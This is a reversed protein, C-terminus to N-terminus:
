KAIDKFYRAKGGLEDEIELLRNYKAIRDSRSLSGTKIQGASTAVALDAIFDDETEGSRHSIVTTFGNEKALKIAALTETLTGIQNLKILISNAAKEEIGRQLFHTNTVFLDDGVIQIKNGLKATLEKWGEWDNEDLGDEISTIPYKQTLEEFYSVMESATRSRYSEGALRKKKEIYKQTKKDYFESAAADLAITIQSQPDYGAKEIAQVMLDLAEENSALSPAFGGEDGVSTSHGKDKLIKKLTHFVECGWRLAETFNPAGTPRIMFEQFDLSSDAHVGGNIINMMPCPLLHADEELISQYLPLKRIHARARAIALSVGLIANAGFFSKHPTGDTEIMLLDLKDQELLSKGKLLDLLPGNVNAVAKKVGKGFYRTEDKDRLELAEHEGTSAGSPVKAQVKIGNETTLTVCVTPTGRSDLVELAHLSKITDM